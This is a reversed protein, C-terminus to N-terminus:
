ELNNSRTKLYVLHLLKFSIILIMVAFYGCVILSIKPNKENECFMKQDKEYLNLYMDYRSPIILGSINLKEHENFLANTLFLQGYIKRSGLDCKSLNQIIDTALFYFVYGINLKGTSRTQDFVTDMEGTSKILFKTISSQGNKKPILIITDGYAIQYRRTIKNQLLINFYNNIGLPVSSGEYTYLFYTIKKIDASETINYFKFYVNPELLRDSAQVALFSSFILFTQM